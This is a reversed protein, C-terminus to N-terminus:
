RGNMPTYCPVHIIVVKSLRTLWLHTFLLVLDMKVFDSKNGDVLVYFSSVFLLTSEINHRILYSNLFKRSLVTIGTVLVTQSFITIPTWRKM